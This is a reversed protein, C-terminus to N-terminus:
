RFRAPLKNKAKKYIWIKETSTKVGNRFVICYVINIFIFFYYFKLFTSFLIFYIEKYGNSFYRFIDEIIKIQGFIAPDLLM